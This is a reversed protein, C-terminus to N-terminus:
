RVVSRFVVRGDRLAPVPRVHGTFSRECAADVSSAAALTTVNSITPPVLLHRGEDLRSLAEQPSLWGAEVAESTRGDAHQGEPLRATFFYTDYRKPECPPTVWHSQLSLLDSRLAWGREALFEGFSVARSAVKERAAMWHDAAEDTAVGGAPGALLIGSEEFLERAAAVLVGKATSEACGMFAAWEAVAPGEWPIDCVVDREDMGGGPFVVADPVFAMTSARRLMFVDVPGEEPHLVKVSRDEAGGSMRYRRHPKSKSLLMVTAALRPAPPDFSDPDTLYARAREEAPTGGPIEYELVAGPYVLDRIGLIHENDM